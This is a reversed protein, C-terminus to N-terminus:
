SSPTPIESNLDMTPYTYLLSSFEPRWESNWGRGSSTLRIPFYCRPSLPDRSNEAWLTWFRSYLSTIYVLGLFPSGLSYWPTKRNGTHLSMMKLWHQLGLMIEWPHEPEDRRAGLSWTSLCWTILTAPCLWSFFNALFFRTLGPGCPRRGFAEGPTASSITSAGTNTNSFFNARSVCASCGSNQSATIRGCKLGCSGRLPHISVLEMCNLTGTVSAKPRLSMLTLSLSFLLCEGRGAVCRLLDAREETILFLIWLIPYFCPKRLLSNQGRLYDSNM